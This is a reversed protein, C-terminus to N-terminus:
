FRVTVELNKRHLLRSRWCGRDGKVLAEVAKWRGLSKKKAAQAKEGYGRIVTMASLDLIAQIYIFYGDM